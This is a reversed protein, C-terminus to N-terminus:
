LNLYIDLKSLATVKDPLTGTCVDIIPDGNKRSIIDLQDVKKLVPIM